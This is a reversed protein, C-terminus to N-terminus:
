RAEAADTLPTVSVAELAFSGASLVYSVREGVRLRVDSDISTLRVLVEGGGHVPEIFGYGDAGAAVAITGRLAGAPKPRCVRNLIWEKTPRPSSTLRM